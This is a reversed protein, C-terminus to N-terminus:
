CEDDHFRLGSVYLIFMLLLDLLPWSSSYNMLPFVVYMNVQM